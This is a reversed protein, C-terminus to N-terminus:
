VVPTKLKEKFFLVENLSYAYYVIRKNYSKVSLYPYIVSNLYEFFDYKNNFDYIKNLINIYFLKTVDFILSLDPSNRKKYLLTMKQIMDDM